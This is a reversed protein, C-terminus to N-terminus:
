GFLRNASQITVFAVGNPAGGQATRDFDVVMFENNASTAAPDLQQDGSVTTIGYSTGIVIASASSVPVRFVADPDVIVKGLLSPNYISSTVAGNVGSTQLGIFNTGLSVGLKSSAADGVVHKAVVAGNADFRVMDGLVPTYTAAATLAFDPAEPAGNGNSLSYAYTFAM